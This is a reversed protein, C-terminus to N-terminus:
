NPKTYFIQLKLKKAEDAPAVNNGYLITGLPNMVSSVPVIKIQDSGIQIPSKLFGISSLNINETVSLGLRINKNLDEDDSNIIQNIHQTIRIKYLIGKDDEDVEIIGGHVYKNLKTDSNVSNDSVYDIITKNNTADYLYIRRPEYVGVQGMAVKDIYFVLNAENIMWNNVRLEDLEDPVGNPMPTTANGILNGEDDIKVNDINGFLDIFAVSGENGKLFLRDNGFTSNSNNIGNQYLLSNSNDYFNVTNGKLNLKIEKKSNVTSISGNSLETTIDSHFQVMIYGSNFDLMALAGEQNFNNEIQFYIGKFYDKFLSNNLLNTSSTELIKTQFFDKDLNIWMGPKKREKVVRDELVTTVDGDSDLFNGNDDTKYIIIEENNFKFASNEITNSSNNLQSGIINNEVLSKEDSYYKQYYTSIDNPNPSPNFDRLVYGNEFIKLTMSSEQNGYISDLEYINESDVTEKLTSFYPVYLYVSDIAQIEPNDGITPEVTALQVQTVFHAKTTGFVPNNYIGLANIALNNTQVAGTSKTYAVLNQVEYKEMDFHDDGLVDSDLSNFDKDCSVLGFLGLVIATIRILSNKM